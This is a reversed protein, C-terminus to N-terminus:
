ERESDKKKFIEILFLLPFLLIHSRFFSFTPLSRRSFLSTISFNIRSYVNVEEYEKELCINHVDLENFLWFQVTKM